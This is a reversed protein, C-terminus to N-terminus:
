KLSIRRRIRPRAALLLWRSRYGLRGHSTARQAVALRTVPVRALKAAFDEWARGVQRPVQPRVRALLGVLALVAVPGEGDRAVELPVDAVDVVLLFWEPLNRALKRVLLPIITVM